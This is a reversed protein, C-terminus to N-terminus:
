RECSSEEELVSLLAQIEVLRLATDFSASKKLGEAMKSLKRKQKRVYEEFHPPRDKLLNRGFFFELATPPETEKQPVVSLIHYLKQGEKALTESLITYGLEYLLSRLEPVSSMPQLIIQGATQFVEPSAKLIEAIMLGGMGAIIICDAEKPSLTEAGNGLRTTVSEKMQYRCITADARSLPGKRIDSAIALKTKGHKCLWVPLYAHDTGIDAVTNCPQVMEAIQMLRPTLLPAKKSM